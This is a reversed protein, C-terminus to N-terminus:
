TEAPPLCLNIMNLGRVFERQKLIIFAYLYHSRVCPQARASRMIIIIVIIIIISVCLQASRRQSEGDGRTRREPCGLPQPPSQLPSVGDQASFLYHLHKVFFPIILYKHM